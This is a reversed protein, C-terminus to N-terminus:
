RIEMEVLVLIERLLSAIREWKHREIEHRARKMEQLAKIKAEYEEITSEKDEDEDEDDAM